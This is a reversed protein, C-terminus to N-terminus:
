GAPPSGFPPTILFYSVDSLIYNKRTNSYPLAVDKGYSIIYVERIAEIIFFGTPEIFL